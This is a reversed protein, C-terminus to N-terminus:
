KQSVIYMRIPTSHSIYMYHPDGTESFDFSGFIVFGHEDVEKIEGIFPIAGENIIIKVNSGEKFIKSM